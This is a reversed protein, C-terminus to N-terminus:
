ELMAYDNLFTEFLIDQLIKGEQIPYMTYHVIREIASVWGLSGVVMLNQPTRRNETKFINVNGKTEQLPHLM